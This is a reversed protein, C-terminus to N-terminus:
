FSLVSFSLVMFNIAMIAFRIPLTSHVAQATPTTAKSKLIYKYLTGAFSPTNEPFFYAHELPKKTKKKPYIRMRYTMVAGARNKALFSEPDFNQM